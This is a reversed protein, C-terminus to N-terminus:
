SCGRDGLITYIYPKNGICMPKKLRRDGLITYIYPKNGICMPKKLRRDGMNKQWYSPRM